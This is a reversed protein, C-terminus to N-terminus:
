TRRLSPERIRKSLLATTNSFVLNSGIPV